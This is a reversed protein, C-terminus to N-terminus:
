NTTASSHNPSKMKQTKGIQIWFLYDSRSLKKSRTLILEIEFEIKQLSHMFRDLPAKPTNRSPAAKTTPGVTVGYEPVVLATVPGRVGYAAVLMLLQNSEVKIQVTKM